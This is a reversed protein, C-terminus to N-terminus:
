ASAPARVMLRKARHAVGRMAALLAGRRSIGPAAPEDGLATPDALALAKVANSADVTHDTAYALQNTAYRDLAYRYNVM